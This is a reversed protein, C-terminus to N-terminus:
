SRFNLKTSDFIVYQQLVADTGRVFRYIVSMM